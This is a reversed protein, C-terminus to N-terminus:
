STRNINIQKIQLFKIFFYCVDPSKKLKAKIFRLLHKSNMCSSLHVHTDVKRVNYFDRHPVKKFRFPSIKIRPVTIQLFAIFINFKVKSDAIEQYETLLSFMNWKSELYRLRRYAYSKAPGDSIINLIEDLDMFYEKVSPVEYAPGNDLTYTANTISAKSISIIM